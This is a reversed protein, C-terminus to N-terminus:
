CRSGHNLDPVLSSPIVIGIWFRFKNLLMTIMIHCCIISNKANCLNSPLYRQGIDDYLSCKFFAHYEDEIQYSNNNILCHSCTRFERPIGAHRGVEINLKHNPCRFKAVAKRIAFPLNCSIYREVNLMTKFHKYHECKPSSAVQGHWDQISCDIVKQQFEKLFRTVNGVDQSIWVFGFGFRYLLDRVSSAWNSRGIDTHSKLMLYCSKPYRNQNM